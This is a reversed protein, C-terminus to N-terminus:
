LMIEGDNKVHYMVILITINIMINMSKINVLWQEAVM